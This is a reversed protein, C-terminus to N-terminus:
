PVRAATMVELEACPLTALLQEAEDTTCALGVLDRGEFRRRELRLTGDAAIVADHRSAALVCRTGDGSAVYVSGRLGGAIEEGYLEGFLGGSEDCTTATTCDVREVYVAGLLSAESLKIFPPTTVAPGPADCAADNHTHTTVQWVGVLPSPPEDSCGGALAVLAVLALSLSALRSM